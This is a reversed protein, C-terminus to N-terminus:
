EEEMCEQITCEYLVIDNKDVYQAKECEKALQKCYNTVIEKVQERVEKKTSCDCMSINERSGDKKILYITHTPFFM